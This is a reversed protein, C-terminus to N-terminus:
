VRWLGLLGFGAGTRCSDHGHAARDWGCGPKTREVEIPEEVCNPVEACLFCVADAHCATVWVQEGSEREAEMASTGSREQDQQCGDDEVGGGVGLAGAAPLIAAHFGLQALVVVRGVLVVELGVLFFGGVHAILLPQVAHAELRSGHM